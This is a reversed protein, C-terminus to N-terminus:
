KDNLRRASDIACYGEMGFLYVGYGIWIPSFLRGAGRAAAGFTGSAGGGAWFAGASPVTTLSSSSAFGRPLGILSKPFTGGLISLGIKNESDLPDYATICSSICSVYDGNCMYKPM